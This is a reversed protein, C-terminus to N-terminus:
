GERRLSAATAAGNATPAAAAVEKDVITKGTPALSVAPVVFWLGTEHRDRDVASYPRFHRGQGYGLWSRPSGVSSRRM